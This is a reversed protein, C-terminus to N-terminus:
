CHFSEIKTSGVLGLEGNGTWEDRCQEHDGRKGGADRGEAPWDVICGPAAVDFCNFRQEFFM